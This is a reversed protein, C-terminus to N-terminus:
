IMLLKKNARIIWCGLYLVDEIGNYVLFDIFFYRYM